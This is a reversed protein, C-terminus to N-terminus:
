RPTSRQSPSAPQELEELYRAGGLNRIQGLIWQAREAVYPSPPEVQYVHPNPLAAALRAAQLPSLQRAEINWYHAAAACGGFVGTGFEVTNLYVELIRQKPWTLEILVTFWAELGKRVWSRGPWLFLNKATQQSLTSAGRLRGGAQAESLAQKLAQLDFGYHEAFRQDEAAIVAIPLATGLQELDRWCRLARYGQNGKSGAELARAIQIGSTPPDLWRLALVLSFSLGIVLLLLLLLWRLLRRWWPRPRPSQAASSRRPRPM